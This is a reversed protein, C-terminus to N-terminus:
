FSVEEVAISELLETFTSHCIADVEEVTIADSADLKTDLQSQVNSTVGHMYNLEDETATLGLQTVTVNHPNDKDNKHEDVYQETALGDASQIASDAKALSEQVDEALFDKAVENQSALLGLEPKNKIYDNKTEDTQNWDPIVSNLQGVIQLKKSM